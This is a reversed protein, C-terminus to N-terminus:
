ATKPELETGVKPRAFSGKASGKAKGAVGALQSAPGRVFMYLGLGILIAGFIVQGIRYWTHPDTLVGVFDGISGLADGVAGVADKVSAQADAVTDGVVPISRWASHGTAKVTKISYQVYTPGGIGGGNKISLAVTVVLESTGWNSQAIARATKVYDANDRLPGLIEPHNRITQATAAVGDEKSDYVMVGSSNNPDPHSKGYPLTSGLPNNGTQGNEAAIWALLATVSNKHTQLNLGLTEAIKNAWQIYSNPNNGPNITGPAVPM